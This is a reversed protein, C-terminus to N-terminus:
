EGKRVTVSEVVFEDPLDLSDAADSAIADAQARIRDLIHSVDFHTDSTIFYFREFRPADDLIYAYPLQIEGDVQLEPEKSATVPFHLTVTGNGDVSVITGFPKGAANYTIQLNDGRSALDGEFLEEAQGSGGAVSRYVSIQPEAGKLRVVGRDPDLSPDFTIGLGGFLVFALTIVAAAGPMALAMFRLSRSRSTTRTKGSDEEAEHQNRIRSAFAQAPYRELFAANDREIAAVREFFGESREIERAKEPPLEGLVYQEVLIDPIRRESM